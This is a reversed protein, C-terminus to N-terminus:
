ENERMRKDDGEADANPPPPTRKRANGIQQRFEQALESRLNQQSELIRGSLEQSQQTLTANLTSMFGSLQGALSAEVANVRETLTQSVQQQHLVHDRFDQRMSQIDQKLLDHTVSAEERIAAFRQEMKQEVELVAKKVPGHVDNQAPISAPASGGSDQLKEINGSPPHQGLLWSPKSKKGKGKGKTAGKEGSQSPLVLICGHETLITDKPPGVDAAILWQKPRIQKIVLAKWAVENLLDQLDSRSAGPHVHHLEWRQPMSMDYPTNEQPVWGPFLRKRVVSYEQCRVRVGVGSKSKVIGLVGPTSSALVRLESLSKEPCWIVKFAWDPEGTELRPSTFIGPVALKLVQELCASKVRLMVFVSDAMDATSIQKGQRFAKKSWTHILDDNGLSLVRKLHRIPSVVFDPWEDYETRHVECAVCSSDIVRMKYKATEGAIQMPTAGLDILTGRVLMKGGNGDQCPFEVQRNPRKAEPLSPEGLVLVSLEDPSLDVDAKALLQAESVDVVALGSCGHSVSQLIVPPHGSSTCFFDAQPKIQRSQLAEAWPDRTQLEDEEGEHKKPKPNKIESQKIIRMKGQCKAKLSQWSDFCNFVETLSGEGIAAVVEASRSAVEDPAVGKALLLDKLKKLQAQGGGRLRSSIRIPMGNPVSSLRTDASVHRGNVTIVCSEPAIEWEDKLVQAITQHPKPSIYRWGQFFAFFVRSGSSNKPAMGATSCPKSSNSLGQKTAGVKRRPVVPHVSSGTEEPWSDSGECQCPGDLFPSLQGQSLQSLDTVNGTTQEGFAGANLAQTAAEGPPLSNPAIVVIVADSATYPFKYDWRARMIGSESVVTVSCRTPDVGQLGLREREQRLTRGKVEGLPIRSHGLGVVHLWWGQGFHLSSCDVEKGSWAGGNLGGTPWLHRIGLSKSIPRATDPDAARVSPSLTERAPMNHNPPSAQSGTLRVTFKQTPPIAISTPRSDNPWANWSPEHRPWPLLPNIPGKVEGLASSLQSQDIDPETLCPARQLPWKGFGLGTAKDTHQQPQGSFRFRKFLPETVADLMSGTPNQVSLTRDGDLTCAMQEFNPVLGACPPQADSTGALQTISSCQTPINRVLDDQKKEVGWVSKVHSTRSDLTGPNNPQPETAGMQGLGLRCDHDYKSAAHLSQNLVEQNSKTHHVHNRLTLDLACLSFGASREVPNVVEQPTQSGFGLDPVLPTKNGQQTSQTSVIRITSDSSQQRQFPTPASGVTLSDDADMSLPDLFIDSLQRMKLGGIKIGMDEKSMHELGLGLSHLHANMDIMHPRSCAPMSDCTGVMPHTNMSTQPHLPHLGGVPHARATAHHLDAQRLPEHQSRLDLRGPHTVHCPDKYAAQEREQKSDMGIPHANAEGHQSDSPSVAQEREPRCDLGVPHASATVHSSDLLSPQARDPKFHLGIPHANAEVCHSGLSSAAQEREPRFDLRMRPSRKSCGSQPGTPSSGTRAGAQLGLGRPSRKSCCSQLGPPIREPELDLGVGQEKAEAYHSGLSSVAQEREPRLDLGVPHASATVPGSDQSSSQAREPKSDLTVPHANAEAYHSGLLSAAQEREPRSDLGVPHASATVHSSDMLRIQAREPELDLNVPLANMAVDHFDPLLAAQKREPWLDLGVPHANAVVHHPNLSAAVPPSVEFRPHRVHQHHVVAQKECEPRFVLGVPHASTTVNHSDLSAGASQLVSHGQQLRSTAQEREPRLDLGVPHASATVHSSDMPRIQAREPELDLNVPLANMAVDHFDPILAAQNREPWLDLGVPHANAVAHHPNLSAAVHPPVGFRQHRVHQHHVVAQKECEPRFVLGVPHASTTVNHSDLSAAASQLVSPGQQWVNCAPWTPPVRLVDGDNLRAVSEDVIEQNVQFVPTQAVGFLEQVDSLTVEAKAWVARAPLEDCYVLRMYTTRQTLEDVLIVKPGCAMKAWTAITVSVDLGWLNALARVVGYDELSSDPMFYVHRSPWGPRLVLHLEPEPEPNEVFFSKENPPPQPWVMLAPARSPIKQRDEQTWLGQIVAALNQGERAEMGRPVLRAWGQFSVQTMHDWCIERPRLEQLAQNFFADVAQQSLPRHPHLALAVLLAEMAHAPPFSEGILSVATEEEEPITLTLPMGMSHLIEWKSLRRFTGKAPVVPVHLGKAKAHDPPLQTSRHYAATVSPFAKREDVVRLDWTPKPSSRLWLPLLNKDSLLEFEDGTLILPVLVEEPMNKWLSGAAGCPVHPGMKSVSPVQAGSAGLGDCDATNWLIMLVRPRATCGLPAADCVRQAVLVFGCYGLARVIERYDAHRLLGCVNEIVVFRRQSVRLAVFLADWSRASCANLGLCRGMGSFPQCPPSAVIAEENDLRTLISVDAVNGGVPVSDGMCAGDQFGANIKMMQVALEKYDVRMTISLPLFKAAQSWANLGGSFFEAVEGVVDCCTTLKVHGTLETTQPWQITSLMPGPVFHVVPGVLMYDQGRRLNHEQYQTVALRCTTVRPNRHRPPEDFSQPLGLDLVVCECIAGLNVIRVALLNGSSFVPPELFRM